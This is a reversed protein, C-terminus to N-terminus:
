NKAHVCRLRGPKGNEVRRLFGSAVIAFAEGHRPGSSMLLTNGRRLYTGVGDGTVYRSASKITFNAQPQPVGTRGAADGPLECMYSGRPVTGITGQASAPALAAAATLFAVAHRIFSEMM